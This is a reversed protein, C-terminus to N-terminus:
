GAREAEAAGAPEAPDRAVSTSNAERAIWGGGLVLDEQYFVCAQGPTVARQPQRLRVRVRGEALPEVTAPTGPHNYRIKTLAEFRGPPQNFAIWNCGDIVFEARELAANDGVIVRNAAPDLDVVYLPRAAPVKLGRRQGVTYFEIGEHRGVVKGALDVIEGSHPKVLGSDRLFAGYDNDPVFCIEMSEEKEATKIRRQRAAERTRAKTLEGLPLLIRALQDQRLSFLFYSQDKRPDCGRRLRTRGGPDARDIRAYHGTAVYAAELQRACRILAGFKTHENCMVCPNPTRGAQYERAFYEIVRKRFDEAENITYHRIGLESAVTRADQVADPGCCRDGMRDACEQPWLKLTVGIVEYGQELLLAAAACSDVGGSMGVVVREPKKEIVRPFYGKRGHTYLRRFGRALRGKPGAGPQPPTRM